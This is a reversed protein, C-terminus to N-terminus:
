WKRAFCNKPFKSSYNGVQIWKGNQFNVISYRTPGDGAESFYNDDEDVSTSIAHPNMENEILDQGLM